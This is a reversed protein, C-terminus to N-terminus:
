MNPIRWFGVSVQGKRLLTALKHVDTKMCIFFLPCIYIIPKSDTLLRLENLNNRVITRKFDFEIHGQKWGFVSECQEQSELEVM